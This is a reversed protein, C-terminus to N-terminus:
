NKLWDKTIDRENSELRQTMDGHRQPLLGVDHAFDIDELHKLLSWQIGRTQVKTTEKMIWDMVLLFLFPPLVFGQRIPSWVIFTDRLTNGHIVQYTSPEYVLRIMQIIKKRIGYHQLLKWLTM